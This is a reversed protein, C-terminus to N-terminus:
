TQSADLSRRAVTSPQGAAGVATCHRSTAAANRPQKPPLRRQQQQRGISQGFLLPQSSVTPKTTHPQVSHLNINHITSILHMNTLTEFQIAMRTDHKPRNDHYHFHIRSLGNMSNSHTKTERCDRLSQEITPNGFLISSSDYRNSITKMISSVRFLLLGIMQKCHIVYFAMSRM